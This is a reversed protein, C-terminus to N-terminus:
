CVMDYLMFNLLLQMRSDLSSLDMNLIEAAKAIKYNVTNRHLYLADAAAKVSGDHRLYTHLVTAREMATMGFWGAQEFNDKWSVYSADTGRIAVTATGDDPDVFCVATIGDRGGDALVPNKIELEMLDPNAEIQSLINMFEQQPDRTGEGDDLRTQMHGFDARWVIEAWEEDDLKNYHDVLAAVDVIDKDGSAVTDEYILTSLLLLEEDSLEAM